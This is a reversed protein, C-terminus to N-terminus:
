QILSGAPSNLARLTIIVILIIPKVLLEDIEKSTKGSEIQSAGRSIVNPM